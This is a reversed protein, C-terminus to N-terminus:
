FSSRTLQMFSNLLFVVEHKTPEKAGAVVVDAHRAGHQHLVDLPLSRRLGVPKDGLLLHGVLEGLVLQEQLAVVLLASGHDVSESGPM